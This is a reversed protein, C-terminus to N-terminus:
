APTRLAAIPSGVLVIGDRAGDQWVSEPRSRLSPMEAAAVEVLNV